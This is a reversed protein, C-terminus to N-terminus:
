GPCLSLAKIADRVKDLDATFEVKEEEFDPTEMKLLADAYWNLKERRPVKKLPLEGPLALVGEKVTNWRSWVLEMLGQVFEKDQKKM